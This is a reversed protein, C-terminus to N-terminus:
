NPRDTSTVANTTDPMVMEELQNGAIAADVDRVLGDIQEKTAGIYRRVVRGESDILITTPLAGIGGYAKTVRVLPRIVTYTVGIGELFEQMQDNEVSDHMVGIVQLEERTQHLQELVPMEEKCPECWTAWFNLLTFPKASFDVLRREGLATDGRVEPVQDGPVMALPASFITAGPLLLVIMAGLALGFLSRSAMTRVKM